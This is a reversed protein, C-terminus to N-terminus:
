QISQRLIASSFLTVRGAGLGTSPPSSRAARGMGTAQVRPTITLEDCHM